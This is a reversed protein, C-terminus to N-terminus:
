QQCDREKHQCPINHRATNCPLQNINGIGQDTPNFARQRNNGYQCRRQETRNGTGTNCRCRRNAACGNRGHLLFAIGVMECRRNGTNRSNQPRDDRRGNCQDYIRANRIQGYGLQKDARDNGTDQHCDTQNNIRQEITLLIVQRRMFSFRCFLNQKNEFVTDPSQQHGNDNQATNEATNKCWRFGCRNCNHIRKQDAQQNILINLNLIDGANEHITRNRCCGNQHQYPNGFGGTINDCCGTQRM